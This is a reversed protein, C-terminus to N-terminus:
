QLSPTRRFKTLNRARTARIGRRVSIKHSVTCEVGHAIGHAYLSIITVRLLFEFRISYRKPQPAGETPRAQCLIVGRIKFLEMPSFVFVDITVIVDAARHSECLWNACARTEVHRPMTDCTDYM